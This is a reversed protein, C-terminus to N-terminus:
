SNVQLLKLPIAKLIAAIWDSRHVGAYSIQTVFNGAINHILTVRALQFTITTGDARKVSNEWFWFKHHSISRLGIFDIFTQESRVNIESLYNHTILIISNLQPGDTGLVISPIIHIPQEDSIELAIRLRDRLVDLSALVSYKEIEEQIDM